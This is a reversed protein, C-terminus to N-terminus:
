LLVLVQLFCSRKPQPLSDWAEEAQAEVQPTEHCSQTLIRPIGATSSRIFLGLYNGTYNQAM